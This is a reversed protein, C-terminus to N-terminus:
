VVAKRASAAGESGTARAPPARSCGGARPGARRARLEEVLPVEGALREGAQVLAVDVRERELEGLAHGGLASSSSARIM